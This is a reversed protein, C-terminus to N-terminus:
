SLIIENFIDLTSSYGDLFHKVTSSYERATSNLNDRIQAELSTKASRYILSKTFILNGTVMALVLIMVFLSLTVMALTM